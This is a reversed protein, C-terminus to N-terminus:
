YKSRDLTVTKKSTKGEAKLVPTCAPNASYLVIYLLINQPTGPTSYVNDSGAAELLTNQKCSGYFYEFNSKFKGHTIEPLIRQMIQGPQM